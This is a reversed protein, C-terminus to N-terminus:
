WIVSKLHSCAFEEITPTEKLEVTKQLHLQPLTMAMNEGANAEADQLFKPM